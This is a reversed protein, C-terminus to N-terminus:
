RINGEGEILYKTTTLATLGMPGRVHLKQTSIGLEAGYGFVGGDTFRTSANVYVCAADVQEQFKRANAVNQTIISESHKTNHKNIHEIAEDVSGVIKIALIYDLFETDFDETNAPVFLPIRTNTLLNEKSYNLSDAIGQVLIYSESDCRFQARGNFRKVLELLFEPAVKRNVLTVEIANCVGPRQLKANEAIAVAKEIEASEDVYLHCIGSGTEIVPVKAKEVVMKILKSGGRPLAVDIKGVATLIQEVESHDDSDALEIASSVGSGDASCNNLGEKIVKVIARNSNIASSSGRLLIANGSKYALAFADVTVNPRSEYIIACVGIPVRVQRIQLGEPTSWGAVSTGIPDTSNIITKISDIMSDIRADNLVLRDVLAETMGNSRAVKVDTENASLIDARNKNLSDIVFNLANNKQKATLQAVIQSGKRLSSYINDMNM